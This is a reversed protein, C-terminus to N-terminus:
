GNEAETEAPLEFAVQRQVIPRWAFQRVFFCHTCTMIVVPAGGRFLPSELEMSYQALAVPGDISWQHQHCMPCEIPLGCRERLHERFRQYEEPTLAM